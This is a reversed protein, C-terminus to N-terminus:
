RLFITYTWGLIKAIDALEEVLMPLLAADKLQGSYYISVGM